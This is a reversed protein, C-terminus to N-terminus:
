EMVKEFVLLVGLKMLLVLLGIFKGGVIMDFLLLLVVVSDMGFFVVVIVFILVILRFLVGFM